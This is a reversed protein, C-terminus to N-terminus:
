KAAAKRRSAALGLAALGFLALPAPEPVDTTAPAGEISFAFELNQQIRHGTGDNSWQTGNGSGCNACAVTGFNSNTDQQMGLWYTGAGLEIDLGALVIDYANANIGNAITGNLQLDITKLLTGGGFVPDASYIWARSGLYDSLGGYLVTTWKISNISTAGSLTFDDFVVWSGNCNGSDEACRNSDALAPGNTYVVDAQASLSLAAFLGAVALKLIKM